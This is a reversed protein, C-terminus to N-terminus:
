WSYAISAIGMVDNLWGSTRAGPATAIVKEPAPSLYDRAEFRLQAKSTLQVKVGLGFDGTPLSERTATLAAFRGLPQTASEVGTAQVFRMGAGFAAFPRVRSERTSTPYFLFDYHVLQSHATFRTNVSGSTLTLDSGRYLYRVEGGWHGANDEGFFAGLVPGNRFGSSATASGNTVTLTPAYAFGGLVGLNWQQAFAGATLCFFLVTLKHM